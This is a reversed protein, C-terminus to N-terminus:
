LIMIIPLLLELLGTGRPECPEDNALSYRTTPEIEDTLAAAHNSPIEYGPKDAKKTISVQVNSSGQM